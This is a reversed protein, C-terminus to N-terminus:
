WGKEQKHIAITEEIDQTTLDEEKVREPYVKELNRLIDYPKMHKKFAYFLISKIM